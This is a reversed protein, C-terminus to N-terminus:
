GAPWCPGRAAGLALEADFAAHQDRLGVGVVHRVQGRQGLLLVVEDDRDAEQHGVRGLLDGLLNGSVFNAIMSQEAAPMFLLGM